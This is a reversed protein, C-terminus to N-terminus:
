HTDNEVEIEFQLIVYHDKEEISLEGNLIDGINKAIYLGLGHGKSEEGVVFPEFLHEKIKPDLQGKNKVSFGHE